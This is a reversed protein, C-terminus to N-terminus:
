SSFCINFLTFMVSPSDFASTSSCFLSPFKFIMVTLTPFEFLSIIMLFEIVKNLKSLRTSATTNNIM